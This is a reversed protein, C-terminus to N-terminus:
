KSVENIKNYIIGMYKDLYKKIDTENKHSTVINRDKMLIPIHNDEGRLTMIIFAFLQSLVNNQNCVFLINVNEVSLTKLFETNAYVIQERIISRRNIENSTRSSPPIQKIRYLEDDNFFDLAKIKSCMLAIRHRADLRGCETLNIVYKIDNHILDQLSGRVSKDFNKFTDIFLNNYIERM